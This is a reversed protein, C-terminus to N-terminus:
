SAFKLKYVCRKANQNQYHCELEHFNTERSAHVKMFSKLQETQYLCQLKGLHSDSRYPFKWLHAEPTVSLETHRPTIDEIRYRFDAQFYKQNTVYYGLLSESSSSFDSHSFIASRCVPSPGFIKKLNQESLIGAKVMHSILEIRFNINLSNEFIVFFLPDLKMHELLKSLEPMGARAIFFRLLPVLNRVSDARLTSFKKPIKFEGERVGTKLSIPTRGDVFGYSLSEFPIQTLQCFFYWQAVDPSLLGNEIKSLTSQQINLHKSTEIQTLGRYKRAAKFLVPLIQTPNPSEDVLVRLPNM